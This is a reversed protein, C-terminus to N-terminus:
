CVIINEEKINIIYGKINISNKLNKLIKKFMYVYEKTVNRLVHILASPYDLLVSYIIAQQLGIWPQNINFEVEIAIGRFILDVRIKSIETLIEVEDKCDLVNALEVIVDDEKDAMRLFRFLDKDNVLNSYLISYKEELDYM